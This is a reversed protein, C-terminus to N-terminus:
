KIKITNSCIYKTPVKTPSLTPKVTSKKPVQLLLNPSSSPVNFIKKEVALDFLEKMTQVKNMNTKQLLLAAVGAVHPTAMSTGSLTKIATRSGIWYSTISSGPAIIDTCKGYNSFSSRTDIITSSMVTIVSNKNKAKGGTSAPSFNCANNNSNGAAVVVINNANSADNVATNLAESKSGGLSLSLVAVTNKSDNIAANIGKIVGAVTGGGRKNLVKVGIINAEKAIGYINGAATGACHTGHGNLDTNKENEIFNFKSQARGNFGNHMSYIGTDIIYIKVGKGTYPNIFPERILPLDKQNIRDLGWSAAFNTILSDKEKKFKIKKDNQFTVIEDIIKYCKKFGIITEGGKIIDPCTGNKYLDFTYIEKTANINIFVTIYLIFKLFNM